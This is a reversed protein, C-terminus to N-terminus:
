VAWSATINRSSAVGLRVVLFDPSANDLELQEFTFDSGSSLRSCVAGADGAASAECVGAHATSSMFESRSVLTFIGACTAGVILDAM